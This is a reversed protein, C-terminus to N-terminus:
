ETEEDLPVMAFVAKVGALGPVDTPEAGETTLRSGHYVAAPEAPLGAEDLFCGRHIAGHITVSYPEDPPDPTHIQFRIHGPMDVGPNPKLHKDLVEMASAFAGEDLVHHKVGDAEHYEPEGRANKKNLQPNAKVLISVPTPAGVPTVYVTPQGAVEIKSVGARPTHKEDYKQRAAGLKYLELRADPSAAAASFRIVGPRSESVAGLAVHHKHVLGTVNDTTFGIDPSEIPKGTDGHFLSLGTVVGSHSSVVSHIEVKEIGLMTANAVGCSEALHKTDFDLGVKPSGGGDHLTLSFPTVVQGSDITTAM